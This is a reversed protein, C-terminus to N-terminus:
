KLKGSCRSCSPHCERCEKTNYDYFFGDSCSGNSYLVGQLPEGGAGQDAPACTGLKTLRRGPGCSVCENDKPGICTRCASSCTVCAGADNFYRHLCLNDLFELIFEYFLM